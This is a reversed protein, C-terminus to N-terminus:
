RPIWADVKWSYFEVSFVQTGDDERKVVKITGVELQDLPISFSYIWEDRKFVSKGNEDYGPWAMTNRCILDYTLNKATITVNSISNHYNGVNSLCSARGFNEMTRTIFDATEQWTPEKDQGQSSLITPSFLPIVALSLIVFFKKM